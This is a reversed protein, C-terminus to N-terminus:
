HRGPHGGWRGGTDMDTDAEVSEAEGEDLIEPKAKMLVIKKKKAPYKSEADDEEFYEWSEVKVSTKNEEVKIDKVEVKVGGEEEKLNSVSIGMENEIQAGVRENTNVNFIDEKKIEEVTEEKILEFYEGESNGNVDIDRIVECADGHGVDVEVRARDKILLRRVKHETEAHM